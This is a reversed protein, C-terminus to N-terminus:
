DGLQRDGRRLDAGAEDLGVVQESECVVAQAPVRQGGLGVPARQRDRRLVGGHQRVEAVREVEGVVVLAREAAQLLGRAKRGARGDDVVAEGDDLRAHAAVVVRELM